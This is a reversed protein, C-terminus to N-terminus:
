ITTENSIGELTKLLEDKIADGGYTVMYSVYDFYTMGKSAFYSNPHPRKKFREQVAFRDFLENLRTQRAVRAANKAERKLRAIERKVVDFLGKDGTKKVCESGVKFEKSNSDGIVFVQMIGTGCYDCSTGPQVPAEPCARYKSVYHRVFHFPAIGLGSDEFVHKKNADM